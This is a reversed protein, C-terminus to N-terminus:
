DWRQCTLMGWCGSSAKKCNDFRRSMMFLARTPDLTGRVSSKRFTGSLCKPFTKASAWQCQQTALFRQLLETVCTHVLPIFCLCVSSCSSWFMSQWRVEFYAFNVTIYRLMPFRMHSLLLNHFLLLLDNNYATYIGGEINNREVAFNYLFISIRVFDVLGLTFFFPSAQSSTFSGSSSTSKSLPISCKM